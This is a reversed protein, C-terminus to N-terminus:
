VPTILDMAPIPQSAHAEPLPVERAETFAFLLENTTEETGDALTTRVAVPIAPDVGLWVSMDVGTTLETDSVHNTPEDNGAFVIVSSADFGYGVVRVMFSPDGIAASSPLLSTAGTAPTSADRAAARSGKPQPKEPKAPAEPEPLEQDPHAGGGPRGPLDHDPRGPDGPRDPEHIPHTPQKAM